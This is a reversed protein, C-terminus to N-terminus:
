AKKVKSSTARIVAGPLVFVMCKALSIYFMWLLVKNGIWGDAVFSYSYEQKMVHAAYIRYTDIGGRISLPLIAVFYAVMVFVAIWHLYVSKKSDKKKVDFVVFVADMFVWGVLMFMFPFAWARLILVPWAIFYRSMFYKLHADAKVTVFFMVALLVAFVVIRILKKKKDEKEKEGYILTNVDTELVEAIKVLIDIDPNSKGNEYNSVTQRSVFLKEALEDQTMTKRTRLAKITKGTNAM